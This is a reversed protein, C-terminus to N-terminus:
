KRESADYMRVNGPKKAWENLARRDRVEAWLFAGFMVLIVVFLYLADKRGQTM